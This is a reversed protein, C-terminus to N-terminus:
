LKAAELYDGLDYVAEALSDGVGEFEEVQAETKKVLLCVSFAGDTNRIQVSEINM